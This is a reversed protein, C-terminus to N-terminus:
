IKKCNRRDTNILVQEDSLSTLILEHQTYEIDCQSIEKYTLVHSSLENCM